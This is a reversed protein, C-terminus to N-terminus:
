MAGRTWVCPHESTTCECQSTAVGPVEPCFAAVPLRVGLDTTRCCFGGIRARHVRVVRGIPGRMVRAFVLHALGVALGFMGPKLALVGVFTRQRSPLWAM